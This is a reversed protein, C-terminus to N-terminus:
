EYRLFTYGSAASNNRYNTLQAETWEVEGGNFRMIVKRGGTTAAPAVGTASYDKPDMTRYNPVKGLWRAFHQRYDREQKMTTGSFNLFCNFAQLWGPIKEPIVGMQYVARVFVEDKVVVQALQELDRYGDYGPPPTPASASGDDSPIEKKNENKSEGGTPNAKPKRQTENEFGNPKQQTETPNREKKPPRGGLGGNSRNKAYKAAVEERVRELKGNRLQGDECKNFKKLISQLSKLKVGALKLLQANDDPLGGKDWQVFLLKLYGGVEETTMGITGIIFDNVYIPFYSFEM